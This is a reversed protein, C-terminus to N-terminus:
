ITTVETDPISLLAATYTNEKEIEKKIIYFFLSIM